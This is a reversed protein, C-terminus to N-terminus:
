PVSTHAPTVLASMGPQLWSHRTGARLSGYEWMELVQFNGMEAGLVLECNFRSEM